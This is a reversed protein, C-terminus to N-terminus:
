EISEGSYNEHFFELYKDVDKNLYLASYNKDTIVFYKLDKNYEKVHNQDLKFALYYDMAEEKNKLGRVRIAQRDLDIFRAKIELNKSGFMSANFKMVASKAANVSGKSNPFVLVFMHDLEPAYIYSNGNNKAQEISKRNKLLEMLDNARSNFETGKCNELVEELAKQLPKTNELGSTQAGTAMAKLYRYHCIFQNDNGQKDIVNQSEQIVQSYQGALFRNYTKAYIKEQQNKATEQEEKWNPNQIIKAYESNPFDNIIINKYKNSNKSDNKSKYILYLHYMGSLGNESERFRTALDEFAKISEPLDDLNEKYLMGIKYLADIIKDNSAAIEEDSRPVNKTYYKVTYEPKEGGSETSSNNAEESGQFSNSQKDSRRWNDELARGGWKSKFNGFGAKKATANWVWFNGNGSGAGNPFVTKGNNAELSSMLAQEEKEAQEREKLSKILDRVHEELETTSLPALKQLSDQLHVIDLNEILSNLVASKERVSAYKEHTEPLITSTSDYYLQALRYSKVELYLEALRTYSKSKQNINDTSNAVSLELYEIGKERDPKNLEIEALAYYIQDLFDVNKVDKSMKILQRKLNRSDGGNYALAQFITAYFEMEYGPNMRIVKAYYDKSKQEEGLKQYVQGLIFTLRKKFKRQCKCDLAAELKEAAKSYKQQRLYLDAYVAEVDCQIKKEPYEAPKAPENKSAKKKSKSKKTPKKKKLKKEKAQKKAEAQEKRTNNLGDLFKQTHYFDGMELYTRSLWLEAWYKSVDKDYQLRMYNFTEKAQQFENKYFHAQGIVYWNEDIWKCWETKRYQGTKKEPMAHRQIVTGCKSIATDMNPYLPKSTIKDPTKYVPLIKEYDEKYTREFGDLSERVLERGNFYGNYHATLNHYSRNVLANKDAYCGAAFLMVAPIIFKFVRLRVPTMKFYITVLTIICM